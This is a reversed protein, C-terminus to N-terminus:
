IYTLLNKLDSSYFINHWRKEIIVRRNYELVHSMEDLMRDWEENSLKSLRAVENAIAAMRDWDDEIDDYSENIWRSFTLFGFRRMQKLIHPRNVIIFPQRCLMPKWEKENWGPSKEQWEFYHTSTVISFYSDRLNDVPTSMWDAYNTEFETKDLCIPIKDHILEIGALMKDRLAHNKTQHNEMGALHYIHFRLYTKMDGYAAVRQMEFKQTGLSVYGQDLVGAEALLSILVPRHPRFARNLCTFKKPKNRTSEFNSIHIFAEGFTLDIHPCYEIHIQDEVPINNQIVWEKYLRKGESAPTLLILKNAPVRKNKYYMKYFPKFCNVTDYENENNM